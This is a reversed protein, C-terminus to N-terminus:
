VHGSRNVLPAPFPGPEAQPVICKGRVRYFYHIESEDCQWHFSNDAWYRISKSAATAATESGDVQAIIIKPKAPIPKIAERRFDFGANTAAQDFIM